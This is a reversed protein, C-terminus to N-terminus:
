QRLNAYSAVPNWKQQQEWLEELIAAEEAVQGPEGTRNYEPLYPIQGGEGPEFGSFDFVERPKENEPTCNNVGTWAARHASFDIGFEKAESLFRAVKTTSVIEARRETWDANVAAMGARQVTWEHTKTQLFLDGDPTTHTIGIIRKVADGYKGESDETYFPKLPLESRKTATGGQILWFVFWNAEDAADQATQFLDRQASEAVEGLRRLERWVTVSPGGIQQFQRIGWTSAWTKVRASSDSAKKGSAFDMGINEGADTLGDINKAIYKAIYGTASGRNTDIHEVTFRHEGAGRETPTDQLAYRGAIGIVGAEARFDTRGKILRQPDYWGAITMPMFILIHWHACGEHHPEAVRFGYPRFGRNSWATRIKKWVKCLYDQADRPTEDTWNPNDRGGSFRHFRSPCTITLFYAKHGMYEAMEEFGRARMMLEGRRIVPNSVSKDAVEQLSFAQGLENVVELNELTTRNAKARLAKFKHAHDSAYCQNKRRIHGASHEIQENRKVTEHRLNKVWWAADTMRAIRGSLTIKDACPRAHCTRALRDLDQTLGESSTAAHMTKGIGYLLSKVRVISWLAHAKIEHDQARTDLMILRRSATPVM